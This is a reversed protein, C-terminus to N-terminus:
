TFLPNLITVKPLQTPGRHLMPFQMGRLLTKRLLFVWARTVATLHLMFILLVVEVIRKGIVVIASGVFITIFPKSRLVYLNAFPSIRIARLYAAVNRLHDISFAVFFSGLDKEYIFGGPLVILTM